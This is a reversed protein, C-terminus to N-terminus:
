LELLENPLFDRPAKRGIVEDWRMPSLGTGPRMIAISDESFLEGARIARAAVLSKRAFPINEAESQTVKKVGNGLAVEINRISRIMSRLEDPETSAAHDPGPLERDLTIHKEIVTAGLSVAAIAVETGRTHDSYGVSVGFTERMTLMARLNVDKMSTPYATTCHLVTILKRPTGSKELVGLAAEVDDLTAMGTSLIIKKAYSGINRLFPLNTIEGSPIKLYGVGLGVLMEISQSDFGTSLFEIGCSQCHELLVTHMEDSLELRCLMAHQSENKGTARAQYASKGLQPTVLRDARFTQFKVCDAGADAAVEILQRALSMDGNHNVGAEAIILTTM